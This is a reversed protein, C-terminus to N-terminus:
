TRKKRQLFHVYALTLGVIAIIVGFIVFGGASGIGGSGVTITDQYTKERSESDTVVLSVQYTGSKSYAHTPSAESSTSGDGFTWLYSYTPSGGTAYCSFQVTLPTSASKINSSATVKLDGVVRVQFDDKASEGQADEVTLTAIFSGPSDYTHSPSAENGTQGDGFSWSYTFPATGGSVTSTFEVDLPATGGNLNASVSLQLPPRSEVEFGLKWAHDSSFLDLNAKGTISISATHHGESTSRPIVVSRQFSYSGPLNITVPSSLLETSSSEWDFRHEISSIRVSSALPRETITLVYTFDVTQQTHVTGEPSETLTASPAWAAAAPSSALLPCSLLLLVAILYTPMKRALLGGVKSEM